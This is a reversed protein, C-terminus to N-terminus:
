GTTGPSWLKSKTLFIRDKIKNIKFKFYIFDFYISYFPWPTCWTIWLNMHLIYCARVKFCYGMLGFIWNQDSKTEHMKEFNGLNCWDNSEWNKDNSPSRPSKQFSLIDEVIEIKIINENPSNVKIYTEKFFTDKQQSKFHGIICQIM